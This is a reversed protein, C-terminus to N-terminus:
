SSRRTRRTTRRRPSRVDKSLQATSESVGDARESIEEVVRGAAQRGATATAAVTERGAATARSFLERTDSVAEGLDNVLKRALAARRRGRNQITNMFSGTFDGIQTPATIFQGFLEASEVQTRDAEDLLLRNFRYMRDNSERLLNIWVSGGEKVGDVFRDATRPTTARAM